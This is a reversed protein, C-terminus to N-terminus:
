KANKQKLFENLYVNFTSKKILIGLETAKSYDLVNDNFLKFLKEKNGTGKKRGRKGKLKNIKIKPEIISDKNIDIDKMKKEKYCNKINQLLQKKDYNTKIEINRQYQIILNEIDKDEFESSLFKITDFWDLQEVRKSVNLQNSIENLQSKNLFTLEKTLSDSLTRKM